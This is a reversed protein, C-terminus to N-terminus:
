EAFQNVWNWANSPANDSRMSEDGRNDCASAQTMLAALIMALSFLSRLMKKNM